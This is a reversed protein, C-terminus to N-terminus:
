VCIKRCSVVYIWIESRLIKGLGTIVVNTHPYFLNNCPTPLVTQPNEKLSHECKYNPVCIRPHWETRRTNSTGLNMANNRSDVKFCKMYESSCSLFINIINMFESLRYHIGRQQYLNTYINKYKTYSHINAPGSMKIYLCLMYYLLIDCHSEMM